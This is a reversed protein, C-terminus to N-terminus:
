ITAIHAEAKAVGTAMSSFSGIIAGIRKVRHVYVGISNQMCVDLRQLCLGGCPSSSSYYVYSTNILRSPLNM